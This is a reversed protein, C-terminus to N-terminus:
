LSKKIEQGILRCGLKFGYNKLFMFPTLKVDAKTQQISNRKQQITQSFRQRKVAKKFEKTVANVYTRKRGILLDEDTSIQITRSYWL